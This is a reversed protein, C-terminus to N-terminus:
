VSLQIIKNISLTKWIIRKLKRHKYNYQRYIINRGKRFLDSVWPLNKLSTPPNPIFCLVEWSGALFPMKFYISRNTHEQPEIYRDAVCLISLPEILPHLSFSLKMLVELYRKLAEPSGSQPKQGVKGPLMKGQDMNCVELRRDQPKGASSLGRSAGPAMGVCGPLTHRHPSTPPSPLTNTGDQPACSQGM